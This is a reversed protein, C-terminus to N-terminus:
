TYGLFKSFPLTDCFFFVPIEDSFPHYLQKQLWIKDLHSSTINFHDIIALFKNSGSSDCIVYTGIKKKM